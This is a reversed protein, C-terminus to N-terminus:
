LLAIFTSDERFKFFEMDKAAKAKMSSDKDIANKLNAAM